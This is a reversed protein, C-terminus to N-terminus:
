SGVRGVVWDLKLVQKKKSHQATDGGWKNGVDVFFTRHGGRRVGITKGILFTHATDGGM